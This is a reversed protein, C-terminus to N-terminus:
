PLYEVPMWIRPEKAFRSNNMELFDAMAVTATRIREQLLLRERPSLSALLDIDFSLLNTTFHVGLGTELLDQLEVDESVEEGTLAKLLIAMSERLSTPDLTSDSMVDFFRVLEELLPKDILIKKRYLNPQDLVWAPMVVLGGSAIHFKQASQKLREKVDADIISLPIATGGRARASIQARLRAAM